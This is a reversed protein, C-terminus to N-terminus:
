AEPEGDGGSGRVGEAAPDFKVACGAASAFEPQDHGQVALIVMAVVRGKL